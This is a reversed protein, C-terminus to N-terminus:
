SQANGLKWGSSALYGQDKRTGTLKLKCSCCSVKQGFRWVEPWEKKSKKNYNTYALAANFEHAEFSAGLLFLPTVSM